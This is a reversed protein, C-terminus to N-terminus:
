RPESAAVPAPRTRQRSPWTDMAGSHQTVSGRHCGATGSLFRPEARVSPLVHVAALRSPSCTVKATTGAGPPMSRRLRRATSHSPGSTRQLRTVVPSWAPLAAMQCIAQGRDVQGLPLGPQGGGAVEGDGPVQYAPSPGHATQARRERRQHAPPPLGVVVDLLRPRVFRPAGVGRALDPDDRPRGGHRRGWRGM